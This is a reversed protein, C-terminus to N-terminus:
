SFTLEEYRGACPNGECYWLSKRKMDALVSFVTRGQTLRWDPDEAAAGYPVHRCISTPFNAHDALISMCQRLPDQAAAARPLLHSARAHRAITDGNRVDRVEGPILSPDLYHNSHCTVGSTNPLYTAVGNVSTELGIIEGNSDGLLYNFGSSRRIGVVANIASAINEAALISRVVYAHTLGLGADLPTLNNIMVAIGCENIGACGVMGAISAVFARPGNSPRIDMVLAGESFVDRVDYNQGIFATDTDNSRLAISTCCGPAGLSAEISPFTLDHLDLFANLAIVDNLPVNASAAIAQTEKWLDPSIEEIFPILDCIRRDLLVKDLNRNARRQALLQLSARNDEGIRAILKGMASGHAEGMAQGSGGLELLEMRM